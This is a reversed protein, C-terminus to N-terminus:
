ARAPPGLGFSPVPIREMGFGHGLQLYGQRLDSAHM